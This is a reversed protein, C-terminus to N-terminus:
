EYLSIDILEHLDNYNVVIKEHQSTPVNKGVYDARIPLERHGRDVLVALQISKPRGQKIIADIAARVSRGTFIVDDCIIVKKGEIMVDFEYDRSILARVDDRFPTIDLEIIPINGKEWSEIKQKIVKAIPVGGNKIAVLVIDMTGNNKEIIEHSIRSLARNIAVEDYLVTKLKM